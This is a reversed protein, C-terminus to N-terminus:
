GVTRHWLVHIVRGAPRALVQMGAAQCTRLAIDADQPVVALSQRAGLTGIAALGAALAGSALRQGRLSPDLWFGIEASHPHHILAFGRHSLMPAWWMSSGSHGADLAPQAWHRAESSLSTEAVFATLPWWQGRWQQHGQPAPQMM